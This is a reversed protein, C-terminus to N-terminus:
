QKIIYVLLNCILKKLALNNMYFETEIFSHLFKIQVQNHDRTYIISTINSLNLFDASIEREKIELFIEDCKLIKAHM